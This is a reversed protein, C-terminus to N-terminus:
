KLLSQLDDPFIKRLNLFNDHLHDFDGDTTVLTLNLLSATAAIWLDNKGMNRPTKFDYHSYDPHNRQSFADIGIYSNMLMDGIEIVRVNELFAEMRRIKSLGWNNQYAISQAEAINVFSVYVIKDNPNMAEIIKYGTIDRAIWLIINTDFLLNM